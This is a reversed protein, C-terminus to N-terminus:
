STAEPGTSASWRGDRRPWVPPPPRAWARRRGPSWPSPHPCARSALVTWLSVNTLDSPGHPDVHIRVAAPTVGQAEADRGVAELEEVELVPRDYTVARHAANGVLLEQGRGLLARLPRDHHLHAVSFPTGRCSSLQPSQGDRSRSRGDRPTTGRRCCPRRATTVRFRIGM